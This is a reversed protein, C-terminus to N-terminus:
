SSDFNFKSKIASALSIAGKKEISNNCLNLHVLTTNSKLADSL